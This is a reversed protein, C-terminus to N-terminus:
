IRWASQEVAAIQEKRTMAVFLFLFREKNKKKGDSEEIVEIEKLPRSVSRKRRPPM